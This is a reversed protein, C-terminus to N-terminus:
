HSAQKVRNQFLNNHKELGLFELIHPNKPFDKFTRSPQGKRSLRLLDEGHKNSSLREFLLARMQRRLERTSWNSNIAENMYFARTEAGDVKLLLRYHTWTLEQRVADVRPFALFFSRMNYLNSKEFVKGFEISLRQSLCAILYPRHKANISYGQEEEVIIRRDGLLSTDYCVEGCPSRPM